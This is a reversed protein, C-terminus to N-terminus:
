HDAEGYNGTYDEERLPSQLQLHEKHDDKAQHWGQTWENATDADTCPNYHNGNAYDQYGQHYANIQEPTRM